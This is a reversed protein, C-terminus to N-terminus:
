PKWDRSLILSNQWIIRWAYPTGRDGGTPDFDFIMHGAATNKLADTTDRTKDVALYTRQQVREVDIGIADAVTQAMAPIKAHYLPKNTLAKQARDPTLIYAVLQDDGQFDAAHDKLSDQAILIRTLLTSCIAM